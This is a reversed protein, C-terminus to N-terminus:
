QEFKLNAEKAVEAWMRTESEIVKAFEAASSGVTGTAMAKFREQVDPMRMIRQLETELTKIVAPPTKAPAFIGSWLKVHVDPYGQEDMTPVDPLDDLRQAATVALARLKGAKVQPTTPPPDVITVTSQGAMVSVVSENGSRYPIPVMPAGSKLKFLETALTFATSSTAYNAKDPNAKAWAVLEKVSKAPHDPNVVMILPFSAIMSIPAFDRLTVYPVGAVVAPSIAMAGSAGVLLTLGDPPQAAVYEAPLRGGAGVRNEVIVTQGLSDQLKQGVIRAIIDNGGGAAFGVILHIPKSPYKDYATQAATPAAALLSAILSFCAAILRSPTSTV